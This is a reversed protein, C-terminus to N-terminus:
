QPMRPEIRYQEVYNLIATVSADPGFLACVAPYCAKIGQGAAMPSIKGWIDPYFLRINHPFHRYATVPLSKVELKRRLLRAMWKM